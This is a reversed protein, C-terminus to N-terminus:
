AAAAPCASAMGSYSRNQAASDAKVPRGTAVPTKPASMCTASTFSPGTVRQMSVFFLIYASVFFAPDESTHFGARKLKKRDYIKKSAHLAPRMSVPKGHRALEELRAARRHALLYDAETIRLKKQTKRNKMSCLHLKGGFRKLPAPKEAWPHLSASDSLM